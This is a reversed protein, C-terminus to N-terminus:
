PKFSAGAAQVWNDYTLQGKAVGTLAAWDTISGYRYVGKSSTTVLYILVDSSQLTAMLDEKKQSGYAQALAQIVGYSVPPQQYSLASNTDLDIAIGDSTARILSVKSVGPASQITKTLSDLLQQRLQAKSATPTASPLPVPTLTDTPFPTWTATRRTFAGPQRTPPPANVGGPTPSAAPACASILMGGLILCLVARKM